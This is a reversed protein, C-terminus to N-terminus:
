MVRHGSWQSWRSAKSENETGQNASFHCQSVLPSPWQFSKQSIWFWQITENLRIQMIAGSVLHHHKTRYKKTENYSKDSNQKTKDKGKGEKSINENQISNYTENFVRIKWVLRPRKLLIFTNTKKGRVNPWTEQQAVWSNDM